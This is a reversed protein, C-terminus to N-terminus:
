QVSYNSRAIANEVNLEIMQGRQIVLQDTDYRSLEGIPEATLRILGDKGLMWAPAIVTTTSSGTVTVLRSAQGDHQVFVNVDLYHRNHVTLSFGDDGILQPEPTTGGNALNRRPTTCAAMVVAAVAIGAVRLTM